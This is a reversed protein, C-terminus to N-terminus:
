HQGIMSLLNLQVLEPFYVALDTNVGARAAPDLETSSNYYPKTSNPPPTPSTDDQHRSLASMPKSKRHHQPKVSTVTDKTTQEVSLRSWEANPNHEENRPSLQTKREGGQQM